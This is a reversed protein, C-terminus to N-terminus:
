IPMQCIAKCGIRKGNVVVGTVERNSSIEIQEVLCRIRLDVNNKLLEEKMKGILLDTGGEFTFVGKHM